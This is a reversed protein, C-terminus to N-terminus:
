GSSRPRECLLAMSATFGHLFNRGGVPGLEGACFFGAVPAGDLHESLLGADHHPVPFMRSGRGNCTFLLAGIPTFDGLQERVRQLTMKLDEDASAADRVHFQVTEGVGVRDGIAIAGSDPDAGIVGRVLFDGRAPDVKYEDIVRGVLLGQALLRRDAPALSSHLEKIRELPPRGGLEYIVNQEAKTVTFPRGIPRCGQSVLTLVDFDGSLRAGVAGASLVERDLFLRTEGPRTGGSAMGGAILTGPKNENLHQLLVDAPFTYPDCLVIFAGDKSRPWGAFLPETADGSFDLSFTEVAAPLAAVWVSIAPAGEIERSGGVVSEAVCGILAGPAAAEHVADVVTEADASFHPSAFVVALSAAEGEMQSRAALTAEIAAGRADNTTSMGAGAKM